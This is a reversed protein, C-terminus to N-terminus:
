EIDLFLSLILRLICSKFEYDSVFKYGAVGSGNYPLKDFKQWQWGCHGGNLLVDNMGQISFGGKGSENTVV